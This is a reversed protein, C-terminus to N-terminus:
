EIIKVAYKAATEYNWEGNEFLRWDDHERFVYLRHGTSQAVRRLAEEDITIDLDGHWSCGYASRVGSNFVVLNNPNKERYRSKSFSIMRGQRFGNDSMARILMEQFEEKPPFSKSKKFFKVIIELIKM